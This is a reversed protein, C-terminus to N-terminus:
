TYGRYFCSNYLCYQGWCLYSSYLQVLGLVHRFQVSLVELEPIFQVSLVVGLVCTHVTCVTSVSVCTLITCVTSGWCLYLNYM